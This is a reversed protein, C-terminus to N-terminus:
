LAAYDAAKRVFNEAFAPNAPFYLHPFGAYLTDNAHVCPWNRKGSPKAATFGSGNDESDYYHFEHARISEGARCLLNDREATLNVYGFRQLKKTGFAAAHIVGAMEAGDLTDHLYLFGGCEAVAPLGAEV